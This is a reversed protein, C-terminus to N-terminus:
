TLPLSIRVVTAQTRGVLIKGLPRSVGYNTVTKHNLDLGCGIHTSGRNRLIYEYM